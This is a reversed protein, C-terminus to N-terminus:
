PVILFLFGLIDAIGAFTDEPNALAVVGAVIFLVGFVLRDMARRRASRRSSSSSCGTVLFMLGVIVGVTKASADDFQLVVLAVFIWAIGIVLWLWWLGAIGPDDGGLTPGTTGGSLRM